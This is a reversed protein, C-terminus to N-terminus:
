PERESHPRDFGMLVRLGTAITGLAVGLLMGRAGAMAFVQVLWDRAEALTLGLQGPFPITGLLVFIITLVFVVTSLTPRKRMVRFAAAVLFFVLLSAAAAELPSLISHFVWRLATGDLVPEGSVAALVAAGIVGLFALILFISYGWDREQHAIRRFHVGLLNLIGLLFAVAALTAAARILLLHIPFEAVFESPLFLGLLTVWGFIIAVATPIRPFLQKM